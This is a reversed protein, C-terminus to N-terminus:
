LAKSIIEFAEDATLWGKVTDGDPNDFPGYGGELLGQECGYSGDNIVVDGFSEGNLSLLLAAGGQSPKTSFTLGKEVLPLLMAALKQLETLNKTLKM